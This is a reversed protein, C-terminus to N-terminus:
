INSTTQFTPSGSARNKGDFHRCGAGARRTTPAASARRERTHSSRAMAAMAAVIRIQGIGTALTVSSLDRIVRLGMSEKTIHAM